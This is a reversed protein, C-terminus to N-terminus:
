GRYLREVGDQLGNSTLRRSGGHRRDVGREMEPEETIVLHILEESV